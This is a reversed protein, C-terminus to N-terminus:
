RLAGGATSPRPRDPRAGDAGALRRVARLTTPPRPGRFPRARTAGPGLPWRGFRRHRRPLGRLQARRAGAPAPGSGRRCPLGEAVSLLQRDYPQAASRGEAERGPRGPRSRRCIPPSGLLEDLARSRWPRALPSGAAREPAPGAANGPRARAAGRVGGSTRPQPGRLGRRAAAGRSPRTECLRAQQRGRRPPVGGGVPLGAAAMRARGACLSALAQWDGREGPPRRPRLCPPVPRGGAGGRRVRRRSARGIASCTRARGTLEITPTPPRPLPRPGTRSARATRASRASRM